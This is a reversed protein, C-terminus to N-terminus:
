DIEMTFGVSIKYFPREAMCGVGAENSDAAKQQRGGWERESIYIIYLILKQIKGCPQDSESDQTHM